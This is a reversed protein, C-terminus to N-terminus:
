PLELIRRIWVEDGDDLSSSIISRIRSKMEKVVDSAVKDPKTLQLEIRSQNRQRWIHYSCANLVAYTIGKKLKSGKQKLRWNITDQIPLESRIWNSVQKVVKESYICRYFLHDNNEVGSGCIHCTVEDSVGLRHM